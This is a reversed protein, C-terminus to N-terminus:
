RSLTTPGSLTDTETCPEFGSSLYLHRAAPNSPEFCIKVREAGAGALLDLGSTLVHRALGRGQHHDETRMPEVLGTSTVPDHWFLGYAAVQDDADLVVLDLDPRYLSTQRLRPEPDTHGRVASIMHHPRHSTDRRNALRFGDPLPSVAPREVSALWNEVVGDDSVEFGRDTLARRVVEDTRAVEVDVVDIGNAAAQALGREIVEAVRDPSAGHLVIPALGVWGNWQTMIVAAEPRGAEDFWFLQPLEDTRRPDRWWWQFDAAEYPGFVPHTARMRQALVTVDRLYDLGV